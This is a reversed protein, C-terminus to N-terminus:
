RADGTEDLENRFYLAVLVATAAVLGAKAAFRLTMEGNLLANIAFILDGAFALAALFLTVFAFWKRVVSRRRGEDARAAQAARAGLFLFVPLFVALTSISWRVAYASYAADPTEISPVWIDILAFGLANIHWTTMALALFMLGYLFAERASVYPRPRPVPLAFPVESWAALAAKIEPGSWGARTLAEAIEGRSRGARLAEAVFQALPDATGM